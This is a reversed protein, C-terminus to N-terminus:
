KIWMNCNTVKWKETETQPCVYQSLLEGRAKSWLLFVRFVSLMLALKCGYFNGQNFILWPLPGLAALLRWDITSRFTQCSVSLIIFLFLSAVPFWMFKLKQKSHGFQHSISVENETKMECQVHNLSTWFFFFCQNLHTRPQLHCVRPFYWVPVSYIITYNYLYSAIRTEYRTRINKRTNM